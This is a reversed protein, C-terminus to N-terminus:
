NKCLKKKEAHTKSPEANEQERSGVWGGVRPLRSILLLQHPKEQGAWEMGSLMGPHAGHAM